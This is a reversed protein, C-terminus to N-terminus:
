NGKKQDNDGELEKACNYCYCGEMGEVNYLFCMWNRNWKGMDECRKCSGAGEGKCQIM